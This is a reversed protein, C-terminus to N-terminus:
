QLENYGGCCICGKNFFDHINLELQNDCNLIFGQKILYTNVSSCYIKEVGQNYLKNLIARFLGDGLKQKRKDQRIVLYQLIWKKDKEIAKGVGILEKDELVVYVIDEILLDEIGEKNLIEKIKDIEDIKYNRFLLM